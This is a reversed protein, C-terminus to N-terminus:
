RAVGLEKFIAETHQGVSPIADMRYDFASQQGPPLLAPLEGAPSGVTVWRQRAKLQPHAWVDAMTNMRANAISAEELREIVEPTTLQAFTELILAELAQRNENRKANSVFRPDQALMPTLLVGECFKVWERENQLGLMVTGGDGAAFPGYPYITAHAAANRPPPSAGDMAYYM